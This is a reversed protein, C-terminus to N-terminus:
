FNVMENEKRELFSYLEFINAIGVIKKNHKFKDTMCKKPIIIYDFKEQDFELKKELNEIPLINGYLDIEGTALCSYDKHWGKIACMLSLFIAMGSSEGEKSYVLQNIHIHYDKNKLFKIDLNFYTCHVRLLSFVINVEEAINELTNGTIIVQFEGEDIALSQVEFIKVQKTPGVAPLFIKM